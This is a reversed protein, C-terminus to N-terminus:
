HMPPLPMGLSNKPLKSIDSMSSAAHKQSQPQNIQKQEYISKWNHEICYHITEIAKDVSGLRTLKNLQLDQAHLTATSRKQKLHSLWKAWAQRFPPTDLEMPIETSDALRAGGKSDGEKKSASPSAFAYPPTVNANSQTVSETLEPTEIAERKKIRFKEVRLRTKERRQEETAVSRYYAFNVIMWGWDRHEDVKVIRRGEHDPTRSKPDPQELTHLAETVIDLPCNIRRAIAAHTMDVVGNPDSLKLLDEFIHRVQFNEALSSDLIQTFVKAYM